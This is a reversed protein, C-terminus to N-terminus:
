VLVGGHIDFNPSLPVLGMLGISFYGFANDERNGNADTLEYYDKLSFGLKIPVTLTVPSDDAMPIAPTAAFELYIGKDGGDATNDGLEFAVTM